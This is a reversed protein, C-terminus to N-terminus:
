PDLVTSKQPQLQMKPKRKEEAAAAVRAPSAQTDRSPDGNQQNALTTSSAIWMANQTTLLDHAEIEKRIRYPVRHAEVAAKALRDAADNM